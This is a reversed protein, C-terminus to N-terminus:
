RETDPKVEEVSDDIFLSYTKITTARGCYEINYSFYVERFDEAKRFCKGVFYEFPCISLQNDGCPYNFDLEVATKDASRMWENNYWWIKQDKTCYYCQNVKIENRMSVFSGGNNEYHKGIEDKHAIIEFETMERLYDLM